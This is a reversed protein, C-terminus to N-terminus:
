TLDVWKQQDALEIFRYEATNWAQLDVALRSLNTMALALANAAEHGDDRCSVADYAVEVLGAFGLSTATWQRDIPFATTSLAGAGLPCHDVEALAAALRRHDRALLDAVTLLYYGLTILGLTGAVLLKSSNHEWWHALQPTLPLIAIAGLLVAFPIM